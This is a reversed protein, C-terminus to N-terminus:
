APSPWASSCASRRRPRDRWPWGTPAAARRASWRCRQGAVLAVGLALMLAFHGLEPIMTAAGRCSRTPSRARQVRRRTELGRRGRAAHLERRAQGAGRARRVRRRRCSARRSWAKARRSCTPCSAATAVPSPRPPTPSSSARGRHRRAQRQRGRGPRRHPLHPRRRRRPWWRRRRSLLVGPQEPLRQAGARRGRRRRGVVGGILALRKHRPKM